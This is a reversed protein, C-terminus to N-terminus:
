LMEARTLGHMGEASIRRGSVEYTHGECTSDLVASCTRVINKLMCRVLLILCYVKGHKCGAKWRGANVSGDSLLASRQKSIERM